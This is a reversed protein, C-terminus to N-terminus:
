TVDGGGIVRVIARIHESTVSLKDVNASAQNGDDVENFEAKVEVQLVIRLKKEETKGKGTTVQAVSEKRVISAGEGAQPPTESPSDKEVTM